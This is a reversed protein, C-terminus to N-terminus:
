INFSIYEHISDAIINIVEGKNFFWDEKNAYHRINFVKILDGNNNSLTITSEYDGGSINLTYDDSIYYDMNFDGLFIAKKIVLVINRKYIREM